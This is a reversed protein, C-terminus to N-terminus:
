EETDPVKDWDFTKFQDIQAQTGEVEYLVILEASDQTRPEWDFETLTVGTAQVRRLLSAYANRQMLISHTSM